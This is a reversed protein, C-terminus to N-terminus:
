GKFNRFVQMIFEDCGTNLCLLMTIIFTSVATLAIIKFKTIRRLKSVEVKLERVEKIVSKSYETLTKYFEFEPSDPVNKMGIQVDDKDKRFKM